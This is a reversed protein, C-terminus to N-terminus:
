VSVFFELAIGDPDKLSLAAGYPAEVIGSHSLDNDTLHRSWRDLENRNEVAFGLHDLGPTFPSFSGTKPTRHQTLGINMGNPLTFVVRNLTDDDIRGTPPSELLRQYFAVSTALDTVTLALHHVRRKAGSRPCASELM